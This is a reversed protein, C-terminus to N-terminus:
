KTGCALWNDIKGCKAEFLVHDAYDTIDNISKCYKSVITYKLYKKLINYFRMYRHSKVAKSWELENGCTFCGWSSSPQCAWELYHRVDRYTPELLEEGDIYRVAYHKKGVADELQLVIFHYLKGSWLDYKLHLNLDPFMTDIKKVNTETNLLYRHFYGKYEVYEIYLGDVEFQERMKKQFKKWKFDFSSNNPVLEEIEIEMEHGLYRSVDYLTMLFVFENEIVYVTECTSINIVEFLVNNIALEFESRVGYLVEIKPYELM